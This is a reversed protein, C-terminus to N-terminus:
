GQFFEAAAASPPQAAAAPEAFDLVIGTDTDETETAAFPTASTVSPRKATVINETYEMPFGPAQAAVPTTEDSMSAFPNEQNSTAVLPVGGTVLSATGTTTMSTSFITTAIIDANPADFLDMIDQNQPPEVIKSDDPILDPVNSDVDLLDAFSHEPTPSPSHM